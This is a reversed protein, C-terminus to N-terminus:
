FGYHIGLSWTSGITNWHSFNANFVLSNLLEYNTNVNWENSSKLNGFLFDPQPQQLYQDVITGASGKRIAQYRVACKLRSIPNYKVALLLRDSNNGMWDGLSYNHNTYTQAPILNNYVFPNIRTYEAILNLNKFPLDAVNVGLTYGLQNRSKSKVFITSMRIEDVFLSGYLHTNKIQNRSNFTFFMQSNSGAQIHSNNVINDYVKFFMVPILYGFDLRDSYVISEGVSLDLGKAAKIQLSHTAFFKPVFIERVGGFLVNGTGYTKSSDVINSCLWAHTNNFHLWPFIDYDIRIFPYNPAKNSLIIRGNEGYGYLLHDQGIAVSGNKFAYNVSGRFETFNLSKFNSTDKRIIGTEASFASTTDFGKGSEIVDNYFFQFGIHKGVNGWFHLGSSTSNYSQHDGEVVKASMVPDVFLNTNNGSAYLSRFRGSNDKSFLRFTGQNNLKNSSSSSYEQLYFNLESQEIITLKEKKTAVSDLCEHLYTKSLPRINDNFQILGRQAIRALYNYVESNENEYVEQSFLPLSATLILALLLLSNRKM